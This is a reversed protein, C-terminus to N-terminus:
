GFIPLAVGGHDEIVRSIRMLIMDIQRYYLNASRWYSSLSGSVAKFIGRPVPLGLCLLRKAGSLLDSPRNGNWCMQPWWEGSRCVAM